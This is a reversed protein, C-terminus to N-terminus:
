RCFRFMENLGVVEWQANSHELVPLLLHKVRAYIESALEKNEYQVRCHLHSLLQFSAVFRTNSRYNPHYERELSEYGMKETMAILDSCERPSLVDHFVWVKKGVNPPYADLNIDEVTVNVKTSNRKFAKVWQDWDQKPDDKAEM